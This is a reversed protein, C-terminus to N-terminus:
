ESGRGAPSWALSVGVPGSRTLDQNKEIFVLTQSPDDLAVEVLPPTFVAAMDDSLLDLDVEM